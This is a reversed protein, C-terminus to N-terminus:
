GCLADFCVVFLTFAVLFFHALTHRANLPIQLFFGYRATHWQHM